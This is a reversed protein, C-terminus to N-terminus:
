FAVQFQLKLEDNKITEDLGWDNEEMKMIYNLYIMANIGDIYHNVGLTLWTYGNDETDTNPDMFDFRGLVEWCPKVKYGVHAYYGMSSVDDVDEGAQENSGMVLEANVLLKDNTMTGFFGFRNYALDEDDAFLMNGMWAYAGVQVKAFTLSPKYAARLLVDKGDNDDNMNNKPGNFLGVNFDVMDTVTETQIGSQRFMGYNLRSDTLFLPYYIMDLKSTPAPMYLSFNPLFRGVTISTKPLCGSFIMKYDLISTQSATETQVFYKVKDPVITGWFLFRARNLTFQGNVNGEDDAMSYDYGAQLIGGIKLDGKGVKVDALQAISMSNFSFLVITIIALLLMAKRM